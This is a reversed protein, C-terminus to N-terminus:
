CQCYIVQASLCFHHGLNYNAPCIHVPVLVFAFIIWGIRGKLAWPCTTSYLFHHFVAAAFIWVLGVKRRLHHQAPWCSAFPPPGPVLVFLACRCCDCPWAFVVWIGIFIQAAAAAPFHKKAVTSRCTSNYKQMYSLIVGWMSTRTELYCLIDEENTWKDHFLLTWEPLKENM